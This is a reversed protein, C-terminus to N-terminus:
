TDGDRRTLTLTLNPYSSWTLILTLSLSLYLRPCLSFGGPFVYLRTRVPCMYPSPIYLIPSM